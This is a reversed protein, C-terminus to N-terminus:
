TFNSLIYDPVGVAPHKSFLETLLKSSPVERSGEATALHTCHIGNAIFVSSIGNQMAGLIDHDLSDGIGCTESKCFIHGPAQNSKLSEFCKQYVGPHPKGVYVVRGGKASYMAGIQGPMPANSGPRNMDPNTVVLPLDAAKLRDLVPSIDALLEQATSYKIQQRGNYISFMGRAVAFSATEPASFECKCDFIYNVDDDGNGIVFAKLSSSDNQLFDYKRESILEFALEGSTVVDCFLERRFGLKELGKYSNTKRKSSNSLMVVNKGEAKLNELASVAGPYATKGDHLVGWQDVIFNKFRRELVGLNSISVKNSLVMSFLLCLNVLFSKTQMIM